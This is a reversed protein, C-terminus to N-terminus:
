LWLRYIRPNRAEGNERVAYYLAPSVAAGSRGSLAIPQGKRVYDGVKALLAATYGYQSTIGNDHDLTVVYGLEVEFGSQVVWGSGSARVLSRHPTAIVVGPFEASFERKVVGQVPWLTPLSRISGWRLREVSSIYHERAAPGRVPDEGSELGMSEGLIIHLQRNSRQLRLLVQELEEIRGVEEELWFKERELRAVQEGLASARTHAYGGLVLLGLVLVGLLALFGVVVRPIKLEFTKGEEQPIILLTIRGKLM